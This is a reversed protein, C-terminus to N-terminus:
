LDLVRRRWDFLYRHMDPYYTVSEGRDYWHVMITREGPSTRAVVGFESYETLLLDGIQFNTIAMIKTNRLL